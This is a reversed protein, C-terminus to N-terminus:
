LQPRSLPYMAHVCGRSHPAAQVPPSWRCASGIWATTIVWVDAWLAVREHVHTKVLADFEKAFVCLHPLASSCWAPFPLSPAGLLLPHVQTHTHTLSLPKCSRRWEYLQLQGSAASVCGGDVM